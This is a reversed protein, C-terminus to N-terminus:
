TMDIQHSTLERKAYDLYIREKNFLEFLDADIYNEKVMYDMIKIAESLTKEKKYPRDKATLADFIDALAIIRAQLPIGSDKIGLPYGTGDLKEHHASAYHAVNKLKKPFPLQSLMKHTITVHNKIIEKEESTLTGQPIRLNYLEDDYLLNQFNGGSNWRTAAINNLRLNMKEDMFTSGTNIEEIFRYDAELQEVYKDYNDIEKENCNRTKKIDSKKITTLLYDRKLIEFRIKIAELRDYITELKRAKDIIFEPTTIKGVDHLWASIRLEKLKDEDFHIGAFAGEKTDNIKEAITM